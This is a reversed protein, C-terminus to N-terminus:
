DRIQHTVQKFSICLFVDPVNTCEASHIVDTMKKVEKNCTPNNFKKIPQNKTNLVNITYPYLKSNWATKNFHKM